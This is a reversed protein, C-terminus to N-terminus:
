RCDVPSECAMGPSGLSASLPTTVTWEPHRQHYDSTTDAAGAAPVLVPEPASITSVVAISLLVAMMVALAVLIYLNSNRSNTLVTFM